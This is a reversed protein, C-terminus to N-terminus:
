GSVVADVLREIEGALAEEKFDDTGVRAMFASYRAPLQERWSSRLTAVRKAEAKVEAVPLATVCSFDAVHGATEGIKVPIWHYRPLRQAVLGRLAKSLAGRQNKSPAMGAALKWEALEKAVSAKAVEVDPFLAVFTWLDVKEQEVDCAPTVLVAPMKKDFAAFYVGEVIDGQDWAEGPQAVSALLDVEDAV